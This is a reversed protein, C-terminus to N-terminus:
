RNLDDAKPLGFAKFVMQLWADTNHLTNWDNMSLTKGQILKALASESSYISTNFPEYNSIVKQGEPTAQFELWLLSSYPHPATASITGFEQLRGPVPEIVKCQLSGSVDKKAARMCSHYYALHLMSHTESAIATLSRSQGLIWVPDQTAIKAAYDLAWKEGLGAAFAAFGLPRIDVLFKKGKFEPRLFDEWNHPVKDDSILKRNYGIAHISSGMSVITRHKPDIMAPPIALVKHRAMELLDFKKTHPIGDTWFDPALNFVDWETARGAKLELLFRRPEVAGTMDQVYVDIFPYHKKFATIIANYTTSDFSGLIRLKGEKRAEAVIEDHSLPLTYGASEAEQKAKLLAPSLSAASLRFAPIYAGLFLGLAVIRVFNTRLVRRRDM